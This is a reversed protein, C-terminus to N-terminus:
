LSLRIVAWIAVVAVGFWAYLVGGDVDNCRLRELAHRFWLAAALFMLASFM